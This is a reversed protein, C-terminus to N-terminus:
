REGVIGGCHLCEFDRGNGDEFLFCFYNFGSIIKGCSSIVRRSKHTGKKSKYTAITWGWTCKDSM